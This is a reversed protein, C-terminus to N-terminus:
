RQGASRTLRRTALWLLALLAAALGLGDLARLPITQSSTTVLIDYDTGSSAFDENSHWIALWEGTANAELVTVADTGSDTTANAGLLQIDSWTVGDDESFATYMDIDTGSGLTDGTAIWAASWGSIASYALRPALDLGTDADGNSNLLAPASWTLGGDTSRTFFIDNDTGAGGMNENSFWTAIWVGNGFDVVGSGDNGTDSAGSTNLLAPSSWTVGADTSRAVFVDNDTGAGGFDENSNWNCLWVGAGDTALAPFLDNESDTTATSNLLAVPSWTAGNDASRSVFVDNDTGAGGFNETSYWACVWNGLGDTAVEPGRDAGTDTTANSNLAAPASWTQGNDGSISMLIDEDIGIGGINESSNWTVVWNGSGDTAVGVSKDDRTDTTANTNLAATASWTSGDDTSRAFLLDSDTGTSLVDSVSEWVAVWVGAGDTAAATLQDNGSDGVGTSNLLAPPNQAWVPPAIALMLLFSVALVCRIFPITRNTQTM